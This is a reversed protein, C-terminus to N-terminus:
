PVEVLKVNQSGVEASSQFSSRAEPAPLTVMPGNKKSNPLVGVRGGACGVPRMIIRERKQLYLTQYESM